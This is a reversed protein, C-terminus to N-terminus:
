GVVGAKAVIDGVTEFERLDRIGLKMGFNRDMFAVVAMMSLSDWEDLEDLRTECSLEDEVQLVDKLSEVMEAKTM